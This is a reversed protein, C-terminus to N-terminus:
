YRALMHTSPLKTACKEIIYRGGDGVDKLPDARDGAFKQCFAAFRECRKHIQLHPVKDEDVDAFLANMLHLGHEVSGAYKRPTEIRAFESLPTGTLAALEVRLMDNSKRVLYRSTGTPRDGVWQDVDQWGLNHRRLMDLIARADQRTSTKGDGVSEDVVWVYPSRTGVGACAALVATQKGANVGHDIGIGLWAGLPPQSETVHVDPQFATLWRSKLIPDWAGEMRMARIAEPLTRAMRDIQEQSVWPAPMGRPWCNAEELWPNHESIEGAKVLDRIWTQDPMDLVPTFLIRMKGSYRLLRPVLEDHLSPPGPEDMYVRHVTSGAVRQAGQRYTAFTIVSGRGPGAVFVIRPPKGTIGRGPELRIKPDIEGKPLLTWLKEMFGGAQGMQDWSESLVLCNVPPKPTDQYPHTGRCTHILDVHGTLTKGIQNGGRLLAIPSDDHLFGLQPDTFRLLDLSRGRTLEAARRAEEIAAAPLTM